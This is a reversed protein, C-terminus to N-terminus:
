VRIVHLIGQRLDIQSWKLNVAESARLGHSFMVLILTSDRYGHRTRTKACKILQEVEHEALHERPRLDKNKGRGLNESGDKRKELLSVEEGEM